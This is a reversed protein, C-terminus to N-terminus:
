SVVRNRLVGLGSVELEMTDGLEPFCGHELGCGTPVTGSCLVEGAHLRTSPSAFAIMDAFTHHMDASTGRSSEEGNTRATMTLRYPAGLEDATVIWPSLVNSDTFDKSKSLPTYARGVPVRERLSNSGARGLMQHKLMKIRNAHGEVVGSSWPLSLGAIVAGRDRDIGAALTHLGSLHDRRVADLWQPLREDQRETLM